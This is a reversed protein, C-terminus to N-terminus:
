WRRPRLVQEFNDLILLMERGKLREVITEMAAGAQREPIGLAQSPTSPVLRPDSIQALAVFAVGDAYDDGAVRGLQIALRTKGTGGPGTLTLLRTGALLSRRM